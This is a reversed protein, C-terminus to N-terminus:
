AAQRMDIIDLRNMYILAPRLVGFRAGEWGRYTSVSVGALQAIDMRSLKALKRLQMLRKSKAISGGLYTKKMCNM